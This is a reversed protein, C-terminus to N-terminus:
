IPFCSNNRDKECNKKLNNLRRRKFALSIYLNMILFFHCINSFYLCVNNCCNNKYLNENEDYIVKNKEKLEDIENELSDIQEKIIQTEEENMNRLEQKKQEIIKSNKKYESVSAELINRNSQHVNDLLMSEVIKGKYYIIENYSFISHYSKKADQIKNDVDENNYSTIIDQFLTHYKLILQKNYHNYKDVIKVVKNESCDVDDDVYIDHNILMNNDDIYRNQIQSIKRLRDVLISEIDNFIQLVKYIEEKKDDMKLFKFIATSIAIYTSLCISTLQIQHDNMHLFQKLSEVFTIITSTIIITIQFINIIKKLYLHKMFLIIRQDKIKRHKEKLSNSFSSEYFNYQEM